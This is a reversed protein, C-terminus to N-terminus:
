QTMFKLLELVDNINVKDSFKSQFIYLNNDHSFIVDIQNDGTGDTIIDEIENTDIRNPYLKDFIDILYWQAFARGMKKNEKSM